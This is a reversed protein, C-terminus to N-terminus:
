SRGSLGLEAELERRTASTVGREEGSLGLYACAQDHDHLGVAMTKRNFFTIAAVISRMIISGTMIVTPAPSHGVAKSLAQRQEGDPGGGYSVVMVRGDGRASHASADKLFTHWELNSPPKEGHVIVGLRGVFRWAM